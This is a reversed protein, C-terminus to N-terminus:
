HVKVEISKQKAKERKPVTVVVLGQDVRAEIADEDVNETLRFARSLSGFRRENRHVVENEKESEFRRKGSIVLVGQNFTVKVDEPRVAAMEVDIRYADGSERIDAAPLWNNLRNDDGLMRLSSVEDLERFPRWSIFNMRM